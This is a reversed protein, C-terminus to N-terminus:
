NIMRRLQAAVAEVSDNALDSDNGAKLSNYQDVSIALRPADSVRLNLIKLMERVDLAADGTAIQHAAVSAIGAAGTTPGATSSAATAAGSSDAVSQRADTQAASSEPTGGPQSELPPTSEADSNSSQNNKSTMAQLLFYGAVGLLILTILWM